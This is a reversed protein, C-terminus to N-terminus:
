FNPNKFQQAWKYGEKLLVTFTTGKNIESKVHIKGGNQDIYNKVIALGLGTGDYKRTYGMEEQTFPTFLRDIYEKGMGKGTDKFDVCIYKDDRRIRIEIKGSDTYKIANDILNSFAHIISYYDILISFEPQLENVFEITLEKEQALSNYEELITSILAQLNVKEFRPEYKGAHIQSMNLLLDFTRYLRKSNNKIALLIPSYDPIGERVLEDKLYDSYGVIVNLPSRIEHSIQALFFEKLKKSEEARGLADILNEETKKLQSIDRGYVQCVNFKAVGALLFQFHSNNLQYSYDTIINNDIIQEINVDKLFPLLNQIQEGLIQNSRHFAKHATNNALIIKGEVDVRLIIDPSFEAFKAMMEAQQLRLKEEQILHKVRMPIIIFRYFIFMVVLIVVVVILAFFLPNEFSLLLNRDIRELSQFTSDLSSKPLHQLLLSPQQM